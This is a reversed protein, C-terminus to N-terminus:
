KIHIINQIFQEILTVIYLGAEPQYSTSGTHKIYIHFIMLINHPDLHCFSM